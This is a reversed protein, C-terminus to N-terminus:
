NVIRNYSKNTMVFVFGYFLTFLLICVFTCGIMLPINDMHAMALIKTIMPFAAAIHLISVILPSFFVILVQNRLTQKREREGMGVKKLIQFRQKDDYGESIQKYFISIATEILLISTLAISFFLLGGFTAMM